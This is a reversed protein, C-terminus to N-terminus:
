EKLCEAGGAEARTAEGASSKPSNALAVGTTAALGGAGAACDCLVGEEERVGNAALTLVGGAGDAISNPSKAAGVGAGVCVVSGGCRGSGVGAGGSFGCGGAGEATSKPSKLEGSAMGDEECGAGREAEGTAGEARAVAVGDMPM